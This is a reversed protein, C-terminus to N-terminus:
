GKTYNSFDRCTENRFVRSMQHHTMPIHRKVVKGHTAVIDSDRRLTLTRNFVHNIHQGSLPPYRGWNGTRERVSNASEYTM